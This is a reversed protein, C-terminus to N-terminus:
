HAPTGFRIPVDLTMTVHQDLEGVIQIRFAHQVTMQKSIELLNRHSISGAQPDLAAVVQLPVVNAPTGVRVGGADVGLTVALVQELAELLLADLVRVDDALVSGHGSPAQSMWKQCEDQRDNNHNHARQCQLVQQTVDPNYDTTVRM